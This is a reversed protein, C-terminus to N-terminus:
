SQRDVSNVIVMVLVGWVAISGVEGVGLLLAAVLGAGAFFTNM